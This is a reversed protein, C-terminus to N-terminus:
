STFISFINSHKSEFLVDTDGKGLGGVPILFLPHFSQLLWHIPPRSDEPCSMMCHGNCDGVSLSTTIQELHLSVPEMWMESHRLFPDDLGAEKEINSATLAQSSLHSEKKQLSTVVSLNAAWARSFLRRGHQQLWSWTFEINDWFLSVQFSSPFPNLLLPLPFWSPLPLPVPNFVSYVIEPILWSSDTELCSKGSNEEEEKM